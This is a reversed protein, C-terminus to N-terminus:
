SAGAKKMANSIVQKIWPLCKEFSPRLFPRAPLNGGEAKTGFEHVRGYVMLDRPGVRASLKDNSLQFGIGVRLNNSQKHPPEGAPSPQGPFAGSVSLMKKTTSDVKIASREIAKVLERHVSQSYKDGRWTMKVNTAM